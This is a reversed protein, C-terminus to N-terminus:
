APRKSFFTVFLTTLIIASFCVISWEAISFSLFTWQVEACEGSGSLVMKLADALPFVELMYDLGPGCEPVQDAPLHQLWTQRGAVGLGVGATIITLGGYVFRMWNAPNHITAVLAILGVVIYAIRQFICLPCPELGQAHELYLGFGLLSICGIFVALYFLRTM